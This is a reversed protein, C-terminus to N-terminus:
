KTLVLKYASGIGSGTLKALYVGSPLVRGSFDTGNWVTEFQGAEVMGNHLQKVVRGRTDCIELKVSQADTMEFTVTTRPNFPNPYATMAIMEPIFGVGSLASHEYSVVLYDMGTTHSYAYGGVYLQDEDSLHVAKGEDTQSDAGDFREVWNIAGTATDIGLTAIDWSTGSGDSFGTVLLENDGLSVTNGVDYWGQPGEYTTSWTNNGDVDFCAIMYDGSTVGVVVVSGDDLMIMDNPDDASNNGDYSTHWIQTGSSDYKWLEVDYGSGSSWSKNGIVINDDSDVMIWGDGSEDNVIGPEINQWLPAGWQAEYKITVTTASNDANLFRGTVIPNEDSDLVIGYGADDLWDAGGEVAAWMLSGDSNSFKLTMVEDSREGVKQRGAFYIDGVSNLVM